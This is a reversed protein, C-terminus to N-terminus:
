YGRYVQDALRTPDMELSQETPPEVFEGGLKELIEEPATRTLGRADHNAGESFSRAIGDAAERLQTRLESLTLRPDATNEHVTKAIENIESPSPRWGVRMDGFWRTVPHSEYDRQKRRREQVSDWKAMDQETAEINARTREYSM